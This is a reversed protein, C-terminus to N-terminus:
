RSIRVELVASRTPQTMTVQRYRKDWVIHEETELKNGLANFVSLAIEVGSRGVRFERAIRADVSLAFTFRARGRPIAQVFDTGQPLDRVVVVRSFPQGDDYRGVAGLKFGLVDVLGGALRLGYARDFFLRGYGFTDQNTGDFSEGAVGSDNEDVHFGRNGGRGNSRYAAGALELFGGANAVRFRLEAGEALSNHGEPNTLLFRSRVLAAIDEEKVPLLQDDSAGVIDGSPDPIFRITSREGASPVRTLDIWRVVRRRFLAGSVEVPGLTTAFDVAVRRSQPARLDGDVDVRVPDFNWVEGGLESPNSQGDGNRDTWIRARAIPARVSANAFNMLPVDSFGVSGEVGLHTADSKHWAIRARGLPAIDGLLNAGGRDSVRLYRVGPSLTLSVRELLRRELVLQIRAEDSAIRAERDSGDFTWQRAASGDLTELARFVPSSLRDNSLARGLDTRLTWSSQAGTRKWELTTGVRATTQSRPVVLSAPGDELREFSMESLAPDSSSGRLYFASAVLGGGKFPASRSVGAFFGQGSSSDPVRGFPTHSTTAAARGEFRSEGNIRSLAARGGIADSTRDFAGGRDVRKVSDGFITASFGGADGHGARLTARGGLLSKSRALPPAIANAGKESAGVRTTAIFQKAADGGPRSLGVTLTVGSMEDAITVSEDHELPFFILSRGGRQPDTVDFGDWVVRNQTWSGGRFGFRPQASPFLGFGEERELVLGPQFRVAVSPLSPGSPVLTALFAEAPSPTPTAAAASPPDNEQAAGCVSLAVIAWVALSSSGLRM